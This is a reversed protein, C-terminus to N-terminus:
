LAGPKKEPIKPSVSKKFTKESYLQNELKEDKRYIDEYLVLDTEDAGCTFYKVYINIPKKLDIQKKEKKDLYVQISDMRIHVSDDRILFAAFDMYKELRMCGHSLARVEKGFLRKSNTDHLYVGYKNEFNFKMVGLSNDEGERQRFTFPLYNKSYRSWKITSHDIVTGGQLVEFNHKRLYSTDRKVAPLIEKWAISYPVRWYPYILFYRIKGVQLPTQNKVTGVIVRSEMVFTDAEIVMFYYSPINLWAYREPMEKPELRWREMTIEIQRIRKEVSINMSKRTNKGLKGDPELDHKRQYSRIARALKVSDNAELTSDYDHGAILRLKLLQKYALTDDTTAALTDWREKAFEKRFKKLARKLMRYPYQKPELSDFVQRIANHEIAYNMLLNLNTDVKQPHWERWLSDAHLRGSHLHVAFRFFADSLLLEARSIKAADVNGASDAASKLLSDILSSRYEEPILGYDHANLLIGLLTDGPAKLKGRDSWAPQHDTSRYHTTIFPTAILTDGFLIAPHASDAKALSVTIAEKVHKNIDEPM